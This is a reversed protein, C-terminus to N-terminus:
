AGVKQTMKAYVKSESKTTTEERERIADWLERVERSNPNLANAAKVDKRADDFESRAIRAKARRFLAKAHQDKERGMPDALKELCSTCAKEAAFWEERKLACQAVNLICALLLTRAELELGAPPRLEDFDNVLLRSAEHYHVQAELWMGSSFAKTGEHKLRQAEVYRYPPASPLHLPSTCLPPAPSFLLPSPRQDKLAQQQAEADSSKRPNSALEGQRAGRRM